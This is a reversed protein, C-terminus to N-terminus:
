RWRRRAYWAAGTLTVALAAVGAVTGALQEANGGSPQAASLPGEDLDVVLGGVPVPPSASLFLLASGTDAFPGAGLLLDDLGDGNFDGVEVQSLGGSGVVQTEVPAMDIVVVPPLPNELSVVYAAGPPYDSNDGPFRPAMVIM